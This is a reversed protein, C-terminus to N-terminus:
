YNDIRFDDRFLCICVEARCTVDVTPHEQIQLGRCLDQRDDVAFSTELLTEKCSRELINYYTAFVLKSLSRM